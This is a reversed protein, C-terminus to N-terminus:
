ACQGNSTASQRRPGKRKLSEADVVIRRDSLRCATTLDMRRVWTWVTQEPRELLSAAAPVTIWGTAAALAKIRLAIRYEASTYTHGCERCVAVDDLGEVDTGRMAPEAAARQEWPTPWPTLGEATVGYTQEARRQARVPEVMADIARLGGGIREGESRQPARYARFLRGGCRTCDAKAPAPDDAKGHAHLLQRHLVAVDRAFDDFADHSRAALRIWTRLYAVTTTVTAQWQPYHEHGFTERWDREWIVHLTALVLLPDRYRVDDDPGGGDVSGDAFLVLANGGPLAAMHLASSEIATPLTGYLDPIEALADDTRKVCKSCTLPEDDSLPRRCVICGRHGTAATHAAFEGLPGQWGCRDKGDNVTRKCSFERGEQSM